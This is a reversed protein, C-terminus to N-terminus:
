PKKAVSKKSVQSAIETFSKCMDDCSTFQDDKSFRPSLNKSISGEFIPYVRWVLRNKGGAFRITSSETADTLRDTQRHTQGTRARVKSLRSRSVENKTRLYLKLIDLGLKYTARPKYTPLAM